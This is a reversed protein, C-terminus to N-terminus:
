MVEIKKMFKSYEKPRKNCIIGSLRNWMFEMSRRKKDNFTMYFRQNKNDLM